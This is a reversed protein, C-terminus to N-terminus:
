ENNYSTVEVVASKMNISANEVHEAWDVIEWDAAASNPPETSSPMAHLVFIKDALDTLQILRVVNTGEGICGTVDLPPHNQTLRRPLWTKGFSKHSNVEVILTGQYPWETNINSVATAVDQPTATSLNSTEYISKVCGTSLCMLQLRIKPSHKPLTQSPQLSKENLDWKVATERDVEFKYETTCAGNHGTKVFWLGPVNHCPKLRGPTNDESQVADISM